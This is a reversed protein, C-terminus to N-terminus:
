GGPGFGWDCRFILCTVVAVGGGLGAGLLGAELKSPLGDDEPFVGQLAAAMALGTLAGAGAGVGLYFWGSELESLPDATRHGPDFLDPWDSVSRNPVLLASEGPAVELDDAGPPGNALLPYEVVARAIVSGGRQVQVGPVVDTLPSAPVERSVLSFVVQLPRRLGARNWILSVPYSVEVYGVSEWLEIIQPRNLAREEPTPTRVGVGSETLFFMELAYPGRHRSDPVYYRLGARVVATSDIPSGLPPDLKVFVLWPDFRGLGEPPLNGQQAQVEGHLFLCSVLAMTLHTEISRTARSM